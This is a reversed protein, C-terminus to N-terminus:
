ENTKNNNKERMESLYLEIVSSYMDSIHALDSKYHHLLLKGVYFRPMENMRVTPHSEIKKFNQTPLATPPFRLTRMYELRKYVYIYSFPVSRRTEKCNGFDTDALGCVRYSEPEIYLIGKVDM